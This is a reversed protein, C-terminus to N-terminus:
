NQSHKNAFNTRFVLTYRPELLSIKDQFQPALKRFKPVVIKQVPSYKHRAVM